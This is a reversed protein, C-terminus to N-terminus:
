HHTNKTGRIFAHWETRDFVLAGLERHKTDRMATGSDLDAVEVCEGHSGSYSSKRFATPVHAVEVCASQGASYSSKFWIAAEEDSFRSRRKM